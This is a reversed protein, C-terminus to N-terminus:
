PCLPETIKELPFYMGQCINMFNAVLLTVNSSVGVVYNKYTTPVLMVSARFESTPFVSAEM